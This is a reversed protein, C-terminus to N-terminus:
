GPGGAGLWRSLADDALPHQARYVRILSGKLRIKRMTEAM